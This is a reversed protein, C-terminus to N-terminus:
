MAGDPVELDGHEKVAKWLAIEVELGDGFTRDMEAERISRLLRECGGIMADCMERSDTLGSANDTWGLAYRAAARLREIRAAMERTQGTDAYALRDGM